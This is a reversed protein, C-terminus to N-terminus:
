KSIYEKHLTPQTIAFLMNQYLMLFKMRDGIKYQNNSNDIDILLHDSSAGLIDASPDLPYLKTCDGVDANGVALIARKRVGKNIFNRKNGFGDLHLNGIPVSPKKSIEIIEAELCLADYHLHPINVDWLTILELPTIIAAGIRLHNIKEPLGKKFLLPLSTTSGGSIIELQRGLVDEVALAAECLAVSNKTTPVITGYCTMNTGLGLLHINSLENEVYFALNVLKDKHLIGERLDGVDYMLIVKHIVGKEEAFKNLSDLVIRESNLSIDSFDIVDSTESLMPIRILMREVESESNITKLHAIRSSAISTIGAKLFTETIEPIASFGKIVGTIQIHNKHCLSKITNANARIKELNICLRPYSM